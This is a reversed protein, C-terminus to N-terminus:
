KLLEKSIEMAKQFVPFSDETQVRPYKKNPDIVTSPDAPKVDSRRSNYGTLKSAATQGEPGMFWNILVKAANPHPARNFLAVSGTGDDAVVGGPDDPALPKVYSMDLGQSAFLTMDTVGVGFAIPYQGRVLWEAIQRPQNSIVPQQTQLFTRVKDEGFVQIWAALMPTATTPVRTDGMVIKGKFAPDWLQGIHSLQSEPIVNRNVHIIPEALRQTSYDLNKGTDAWGEAFGGIWSKDDTVDPLILAPPLPDLGDIPKFASITTNTSNISVDELYQGASRETKIKPILTGATQGIVNVEIGYKSKFGDFIGKPASATTAVTVQGEKKAAAVIEDWNGPAASAQAAGSPKAQAAQSAAASPKAPAAPSAAAPSSPSAPTASGGCAALLSVVAALSANGPRNKFM